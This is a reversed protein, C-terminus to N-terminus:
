NTLLFRRSIPQLPRANMPFIAKFADIDSQAVVVLTAFVNWEVVESCPPTTLSGEYRYFRTNRPLLASPNIPAGLKAMGEAKPAAKMIASFVPNFGKAGGELFVGIVAANGSGDTHVFHAEMSTRKGDLAHESPTHFHFQKLEYRRGQSTVFGAPPVGVHITHGNNVVEFDGSPWSTAPAEVQARVAGRLDIPSQQDGIGCAKFASEAGWSDPHEYSWHATDARAGRLGAVCAPCAALASMFYRRTMVM